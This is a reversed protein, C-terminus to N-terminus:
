TSPSALTARISRALQDRRYPKSLLSVGADLRGHHVIASETYGSAYLIKLGPRIRAAEDALQRGSKGPMVVDTFMLDVHADSRLVVLAQQADHAEIVQYGLSSLQDHAYRRVLEDDEVLLITETGGAAPLEPRAEPAPEAADVARPLYLKVTTGEGPESYLCVHGGTQKVFGYVMALGLGTGRSKDKTTFFPEFVRNLHEPAIGTGTDSVALLVYQGPRVEVHQDAYHQELETNSTEITLKGGDSMADRANLCINLLANELQPADVLAQWLGEGCNLRIEIHEGLTRRLMVTADAAIHNVDVPQPDLAQKRAFALLRQTLSAGRQAATAIMQALPRLQRNAALEKELLEANGLIVTLLNNFDHAVGGTLQGVADLRQSQRLQEELALRETVDTMCGVMRMTKGTAADRILCGRDLVNAYSGDCRRFRYGDSWNDDVGDIAAHLRAIVRERDEPHIRDIHPHRGQETANGIYGFLTEFGENWWVTENDLNWDWIADRSARSLLRFRQESELVAREAQKLQSMDQFAGDVRVIAGEVNRSAQGALRVWRHQGAATVAPLEVDFPTGERTCQRVQASVQERWEPPFYDLAQQLTPTPGPPLDLIEFVQESWNLIRSPVDVTWGGIRGIRGAIRSLAADRKIQENAQKLDDIDTCTGLWLTIHGAEDRLPLARGLMWRYVGDHRRLRYEIEYPAGSETAQQWRKAAQDRDDPHFPPNWGHGLSQELTLGTYELWRQNFHIHWGDPRTAWVIQPIAETLVRFRTESERLAAEVLKREAIDSHLARNAEEVQLTKEELKRILAESYVSLLSKEDREPNPMRPAAAARVGAIRALFEEPETPKLIFADAGMDLALREDESETYTATYVIFPVAKLRADAKWRRLLTYGDMVPMLLDSIILDPVCQGAMVLAEEGNRACEVTYGHGSLLADLYYLNEEKDDVILIRNM